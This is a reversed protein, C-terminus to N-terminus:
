QEDTLSLAAAREAREYMEAVTLKRGATENERQIFERNSLLYEAQRQIDTMNVRPAIPSHM